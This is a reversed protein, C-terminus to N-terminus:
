MYNLKMTSWYGEPAGTGKKGGRRCGRGVGKM